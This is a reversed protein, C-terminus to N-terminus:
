QGANWAESKPAAEKRIFGGINYVCDSCIRIWNQLFYTGRIAIILNYSCFILNLKNYNWRPPSQFVVKAFPHAKYAACSKQRCIATKPPIYHM